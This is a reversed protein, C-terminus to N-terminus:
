RAPPDTQKKDVGPAIIEEGFQALAAGTVVCVCTGGRVRVRRHSRREEGAELM